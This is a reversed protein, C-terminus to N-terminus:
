EDQVCRFGVTGLRDMAPGFLPMPQHDRINRPGGRIFWMGPPPEYWSGGRLFVVEAHTSVYLPSTYQWVHGVLDEVGHPSAGGPHAGVPVTSNADIPANAANPEEDGWPWLQETHGGAAAVWEEETPLRKGAWRAYALADDYNVHVVPHDEQGPAPKGDVWHALYNAPDDPKYGNQRVFTHYESNTVPYRDIWFPKLQTPKPASPEGPWYLAPLNYTPQWVATGLQVIYDFTPVEVRVMGEPPSDPDVPATREPRDVAFFRERVEPLVALDLLQGNADLLRVVVAQNSQEGFVDLLDFEIDTGPERVVTPEADPMVRDRWLEITEGPQPNDTRVTLTGRDFALELRKRVVAVCGITYDGSGGHRGAPYPDLDLDVQDGAPGTLQVERQRWLDIVRERSDAPQNLRFLTGSHGKPDACVLTYLEKGDTPWHNIWVDPNAAQIMPSWAHSRFSERNTRLIDLIRALTDDAGESQPLHSGLLTNIEVGHGGFLSLAYDREWMPGNLGPNCVRLMPHHPLMYRKLNFVPMPMGDHIRGMLNTQSQEWGPDWEAYPMLDRGRERAMERIEAPTTAMTDMIVGDADLAVATEVLMEHSRRVSEPSWDRTTESWICHALIFRTGHADRARKIEEALGELGGPMDRFHDFQFRQDLGARPWFPWFMYIDYGGFRQEAEALSDTLRYHGTRPDMVDRDWSWTIWASTVDLVWALEHDRYQSMDYSAPDVRYGGRVRYLEALADNRDGKISDLHLVFRVEQQPELRLEGGAGQGLLVSTLMWGDHRSPVISAADHVFELPYWGVVRGISGFTVNPPHLALHEPSVHRPDQALWGTLPPSLRGPAAEPGNNTLTIEVVAEGFRGKDQPVVQASVGDPWDLRWGDDELPQVASPPEARWQLTTTPDALTEGEDSSWHTMLDDEETFRLEARQAHAALSMVSILTMALLSFRNM